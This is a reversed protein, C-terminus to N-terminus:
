PRANAIDKLGSASAGQYLLKGESSVVSLVVGYFEKGYWSSELSSGYRSKRPLRPSDLHVYAKDLRPIDARFVSAVTPVIKGSSGYSYKQKRHKVYVQMVATIDEQTKGGTAVFRARTYFRKGPGSYSDDPANQSAVWLKASVRSGLPSHTTPTLSTHRFVTGPITPPKLGPGYLVAGGETSIPGKPQWTEPAAAKPRDPPPVPVKAPTEASRLAAEFEAATVVPLAKTRQIEERAALAEEMNGARTLQKQMGLLHSTYKETLSLVEKGCEARSAAVTEVQRRQLEALEAPSNVIDDRTLARAKEFRKLESNVVTWGDLDGAVQRAKQLARLAAAYEGPWSATRTEHNENIKALRTEYIDRLSSLKNQGTKQACAVSVSCLLAATIGALRRMVLGRRETRGGRWGRSSDAHKKLGSTTLFQM